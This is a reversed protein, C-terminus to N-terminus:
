EVHDDLYIIRSCSKCFVIKNEMMIDSVVQAPVKMFCGSCNGKVVPVVANGEKELREFLRTYTELAEKDEIQDALNRREAKKDKLRNELENNEAEVQKEFDFYDQKVRSLRDEAQKLEERTTEMKEMEALVNDEFASLADELKGIEAKLAAFEDNKKIAFLKANHQRIDEEKEQIDLNVRDINKQQDKIREQIEKIKEEAKQVAGKKSNLKLPNDRLKLRLQSVAVDVTQLELLKETTREM